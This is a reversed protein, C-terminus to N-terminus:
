ASIFAWSVMWVVNLQTPHPHPHPLPHAASERQKKIWIKQIKEIFHSAKTIFFNVAFKLQRRKM